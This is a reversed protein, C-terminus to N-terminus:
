VEFTCVLPLHDSVDINPCEHSLVKINPSVYVMDVVATAYGLNTKRKMNFSTKLENKFVNQLHQEVQGMSKTNAEMNFDGSLIVNKKGNVKDAILKGMELRKPNDFGDYGWVGQTNFVNIIKNGVKLEAHQLARPMEPYKEVEGEIFIGGQGNYFLAETTNIPFRSLIANGQETTQELYDKLFTPTFFGYEYGLLEKLVSFSRLQQPLDKNQGNHVEQLALIDAKEQQLFNLMPEFIEGGLWLNLNIFKLKM